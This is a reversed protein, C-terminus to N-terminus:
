RWTASGCRAAEWCGAAVVGSFPSHPNEENGWLHGVGRTLTGRHAVIVENLAQGAVMNDIQESKQRRAVLESVVARQPRDASADGSHLLRHARHQLASAGGKGRERRVHPQAQLTCGHMAQYTLPESFRLVSSRLVIDHLNLANFQCLVSARQYFPARIRLARRQNKVVVVTFVQELLTVRQSVQAM